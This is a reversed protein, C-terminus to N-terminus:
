IFLDLLSTDRMYLISTIHRSYFFMVKRREGKKTGQFYQLSPDECFIYGQNEKEKSGKRWSQKVFQKKKNWELSVNEEWSGNSSCCLFLLTIFSELVASAAYVKRDYLPAHFYWLPVSTIYPLYLFFVLLTVELNNLVGTGSCNVHLQKSVDSINSYNVCAFVCLNRYLFPATDYHLFSGVYFVLVCANVSIWHTTSESAASLLFM